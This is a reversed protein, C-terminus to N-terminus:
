KVRISIKVENFIDLEAGYNFYKKNSVRSCLYKLIFKIYIKNTGAICIIYVKGMRCQAFIEWQWKGGCHGFQSIKLYLVHKQDM